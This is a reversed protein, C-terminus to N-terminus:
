TRPAMRRSAARGRRGGARWLLSAGSGDGVTLLRVVTRGERVPIGLERVRGILARCMERSTYPGISTARQRPDHDTKYGVYQGYEDHPFPVGLNVLHYFARTSLSAEVLALDGHVSGGEFLTEALARPSDAEDGCLSLKYYTQKDSGTNISTGAQLGETLILLDEVGSQKLQVAANLGAAGSGIILTHVWTLPQDTTAVATQEM